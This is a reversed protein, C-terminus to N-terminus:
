FGRRCTRRTMQRKGVTIKRHSLALTFIFKLRHRPFDGQSGQQKQKDKIDISKYRM